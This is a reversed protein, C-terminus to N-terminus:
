PNSAKNEQDKASGITAGGAGGLAGGIAAGELGRGSQHGIIGGVIAGAAAGGVAGRKTNAGPSSCGVVGFSFAALATVIIVKYM